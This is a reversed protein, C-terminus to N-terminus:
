KGRRVKGAKPKEANENPLKRFERLGTRTFCETLLRCAKWLLPPLGYAVLRGRHTVELIAEPNVNVPQWLHASVLYVEPKEGEGIAIVGCKRLERLWAPVPIVGFEAHSYVKILRRHILNQKV